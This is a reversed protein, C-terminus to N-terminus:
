QKASVWLDRLGDRLVKGRDSKPLDDTFLIQKPAKFDPLSAACWSKIDDESVSEG